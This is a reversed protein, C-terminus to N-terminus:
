LDTPSLESQNIGTLLYDRDNFDGLSIRNTKLIPNITKHLTPLTNKNGVKIANPIVTQLQPHHAFFFVKGV